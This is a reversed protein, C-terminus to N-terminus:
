IKNRINHASIHFEPIKLKYKKFINTKPSVHLVLFLM